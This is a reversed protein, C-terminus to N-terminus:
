GQPADIQGNVYYPLQRFHTTVRISGGDVPVDAQVFADVTVGSVFLPFKPLQAVIESPVLLDFGQQATAPPTIKCLYPGLDVVLWAGQVPSATMTLRIPFTENGTYWYFTEASEFGAQQVGIEFPDPTLPVDSFGTVEVAQIAQAGVNKVADYYVSGDVDSLLTQLLLTDNASISPGSGVDIGPPLDDSPALPAVDPYCGDAKGVLRRADSDALLDALAKAQAATKPLGLVEASVNLTTSAPTGTISIDISGRHQDGFEAQGGAGASNGAGAAPAGASTAGAAGGAPGAGGVPGAGGAVGGAGAGGPTMSSGGADLGDHGAQGAQGGESADKVVKEPDGECATMGAAVTLAIGLWAVHISKM